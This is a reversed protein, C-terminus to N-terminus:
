NKENKLGNPKLRHLFIMLPTAVFPSSYTGTITGILLAVAFWRITEGGLLILALLMFIITLSNNLSRVLTETLALDAAEKLSLQSKTRRIERVRDLVVITDHVSFSTTTLVATVFLSNVEVGWFHGLLSFSGLLVFLDHILALIAALGFKLNKFSWGIYFLIALVALIIAFYTKTLLEKGLTPGITEFRLEKIQVNEKDELAKKFENAQQQAIPATKIMLNSQNESGPIKVTQISFVEIEKEQAIEQLVTQNLPKNIQYVLLSGGTFDISPKLGFFILSFLGPILLLSSIFLYLKNYRSFRIM